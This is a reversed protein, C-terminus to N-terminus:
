IRNLCGFEVLFLFGYFSILELKLFCVLGLQDHYFFFLFFFSFFCTGKEVFRILHSVPERFNLGSVDSEDHILWFCIWSGKFCCFFLLFSFGVLM